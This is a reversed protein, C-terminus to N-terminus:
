ILNKFKARLNFYFSVFFSIFLNSLLFFLIHKFLITYSIKKYEINLKYYSYKKM